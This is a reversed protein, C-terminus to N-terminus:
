SPEKRADQSAAHTFLEHQHDAPLPALPEIRDGSSAKEKDPQRRM